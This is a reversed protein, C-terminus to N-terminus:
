NFNTFSNSPRYFPTPQAPLKTFVAIWRRTGDRTSCFRYKTAYNTAIYNVLKEIPKHSINPIVLVGNDELILNIYYFDAVAADFSLDGDLAILHFKAQRQSSVNDAIRPLIVHPQEVIVQKNYQSLNCKNLLTIGTNAYENAQGADIAQHRSNTKQHAPIIKISKNKINSSYIYLTLIIIQCM